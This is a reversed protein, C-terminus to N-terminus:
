GNLNISLDTNAVEPQESLEGLKDLVGLPIKYQMEKIVFPYILSFFKFVSNAKIYLINDKQLSTNIDYKSKLINSFVDLDEISFSQTNMQIGSSPFQGDDMFWIALVKPTIMDATLNLLNKVGDLYFLNRYKAFITHTISKTHYTECVGSKYRDNVYKCLVIAGDLNYDSFIAVKYNLYNLQRKCHGFTLRSGKVYPLELHGDGLVSGVILDELDSTNFLLDYKNSYLGNRNLMSCVSVVKVGLNNSIQVNSYGNLNMELIKERKEKSIM